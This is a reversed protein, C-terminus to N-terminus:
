AAAQQLWADFRAHDATSKVAHRERGESASWRTWAEHMWLIFGTMCGGPFAERDHAMQAEVTRGHAAAYAVYRPNM